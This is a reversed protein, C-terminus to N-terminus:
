QRFPDQYERLREYTPTMSTPIAEIFAMNGSGWQFLLFRGEHEVALYTDYGPSHRERYLMLQRFDNKLSRRIIEVAEEDPLEEDFYLMYPFLLLANKKVEVTELVQPIDNSRNTHKTLTLRLAELDDVSLGRLAAHIRTAEVKGGPKKCVTYYTLGKAAAIPQESLISGAMLETQSALLKFDIAYHASNADCQGAEESAPAEYREGRSKEQFRGSANLLERMFVEYDSDPEGEVFGKIVVSPPMRKIRLGHDDSKRTAKRDAAQAEWKARFRPDELSEELHERFDSM